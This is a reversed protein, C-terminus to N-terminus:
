KISQIVVYITAVQATVGILDKTIGWWDKDPKEPVWITDGPRIDDVESKKLWAGTTGRIVRIKRSDAKDGLGGAQRIYYNADEGDKYMVNGPNRINGTVTVNKSMRPIKIVDQGNLLINQSADNGQFLKQLDVVVIGERQKMKNVIFENDAASVKLNTKAEYFLRNQLDDPNNRIVLAGALYADPTFGGAQTIVDTIRTKNKEIPYYGPCQVEGEIKVMMKERYEPIPRIFVRDDKQLKFQETGDLIAGLKISTTTTTKNDVNFRNLEATLVNANGKLGQAIDVLEKLGDGDNFEYSGEKKVEGWISVSDRKIPVFVVDGDLVPPNTNLDGRQAYALLDVPVVSNKRRIEIKRLSSKATFGKAQDIMQSVRDLATATFLGPATVEGLVHVKFKRLNSLTITIKVSRYKKEIESIIVNKAQSLTMDKVMVDGVNPILLNGELMVPLEWTTNAEGWLTISIQDGPGVCYTEPNIAGELYSKESAMSPWEVESIESNKQKLMEKYKELLQIDQGYLLTSIFLLPLITIVAMIKQKKQGM